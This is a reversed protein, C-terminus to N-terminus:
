LRMKWWGRPLSGRQIDAFGVRDLNRLKAENVPQGNITTGNTSNLDKLFVEGNKQNIRAHMLSVSADEIVISNGKMRGVTITEDKLIHSVPSLGPLQVTLSPM